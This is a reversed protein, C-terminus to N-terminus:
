LTMSLPLGSNSAERPEGLANRRIIVPNGNTFLDSFTPRWSRNLIELVAPSIQEPAGELALLSPRLNIQRTSEFGTVRWSVMDPFDQFFDAIKGKTFNTARLRLEDGRVLWGVQRAQGSAIAKRLAPLATRVSISKAPIQVTFLDEHAYPILDTKFVRLQYYKPNKGDVKFIRVHHISSSTSAWGNRVKVAPVLKPFLDVASEGTYHVGNVVIRRSPDAPLGSERDFDPQHTLVWWLAPTSARDISQVPMADSLKVHELKGIKAKHAAGNGLKLRLNQMVPITDASIRSNFYETALDMEQLWHNWIQRDAITLGTFEKWTQPSQTLREAYRINQRLVLTHAVSPRLLAITLADMAHHRRDFRTKGHGGILKVKGELGSARRAEATLSGRFVRVVTKKEEHNFHYDIRRRLENAMWAVSEMSRDDLPEDIQKRKLRRITEQKQRGFDKRSMGPDPLWMGVRNIAGELSVGDRDSNEAWLAFPMGSKQHNCTRCVAALNHMKNTSSPGSRPVIHDVEFNEISLPEGCYLCIGEQRSFVKYRIIDSRRVPGDIGRREHIEYVIRENREQSKKNQLMIERTVHESSFGDRVNEINISDPVGWRKEVASLWRAVQKTVRDVSPNGVPAGIDEAPPEWDESVGFEKRRAEYLDIGDERMCETLRRLSDVSYVARGMPFTAEELKEREDDSFASILRTIEQLSDPDLDDSGVNSRLDIFTEQAIEDAQEWWEQLTPIKLSRIVQNTADTPPRGSVNEGDIGARAVGRLSPREIKLLEAVADWTIQEPVSSHLLFDVVTDKEQKSLIRQERGKGIRLNAVVSVIRFVQFAPQAKEARPKQQQGPLADKGVRERASGVPSVSDFVRRILEDVLARSLGQTEQIKRIEIVYDSQLLTGGLLGSSGRLKTQPNVRLAENILQGATLDESLNRGILNEVRKRLGELKSSPEQERLLSEVRQYPNRWGRHHAIHVMAVSLYEHLVTSDTIQENALAARISWARRPDQYSELDILPWGLSEIYADLRDLRKKARKYLRRARRAVGSVARRSDGADQADPDVGSDHIVVVSNTLDTPYGDDDVEVLSFGISNTGVDIGARYHRQTM